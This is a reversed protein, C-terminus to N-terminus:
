AQFKAYFEEQAMIPKKFWDQDEPLDRLYQLYVAVGKAEEETLTTEIGYEKQNRHRDLKDSSAEIQLGRIRRAKMEETMEPQYPVEIKPVERKTYVFEGDVVTAIMNHADRQAIFEFAQDYTVEPLDHYGDTYIIVQDEENFYYAM